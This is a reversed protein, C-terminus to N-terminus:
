RVMEGYIFMVCNCFENMAPSNSAFYHVGGSCLKNVGLQYRQKEDEKKLRSLLYELHKNTSRHNLSAQSKLWNMLDDPFRVTMSQM